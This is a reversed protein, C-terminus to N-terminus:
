YKFIFHRFTTLIPINYRFYLSCGLSISTHLFAPLLPFASIICIFPHYATLLFFNHSLYHSLFLFLYTNHNLTCLGILISHHGASACLDLVHAGEFPALAWVPLMGSSGQFVDVFSQKSFSVKGVYM